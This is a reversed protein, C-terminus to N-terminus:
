VLIIRFHEIAHKAFSHADKTIQSEFPALQISANYVKSIATAALIANIVLLLLILKM